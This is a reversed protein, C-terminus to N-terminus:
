RSAEQQRVEARLRRMGPRRQPLDWGANRMKAMETSVQNESIGLRTAIAAYPEGRRYMQEIVARRAAQRLRRYLREHEQCCRIGRRLSDASLLTDCIECRARQASQQEWARKRANDRRNREQVVTTHFWNWVCSRSVNLKRAIDANSMGRAALVQAQAVKQDRTM